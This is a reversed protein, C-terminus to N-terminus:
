NDVATYCIGGVSLFKFYGVNIRETESFWSDLLSMPPHKWSLTNWLNEVLQQNPSYVRFILSGSSFWKWAGKCAEPLPSQKRVYHAGGNVVHSGGLSTLDCHGKHCLRPFSAGDIRGCEIPWLGVSYLHSWPSWRPPQCIHLMQQQRTVKETSTSASCRGHMMESLARFM